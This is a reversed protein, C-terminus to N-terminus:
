ADCAECALRQRLDMASDDNKMAYLFEAVIDRAFTRCEFCPEGNTGSNCVSLAASSIAKRVQGYKLMQKVRPSKDISVLTNEKTM